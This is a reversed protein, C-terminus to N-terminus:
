FPFDGSSCSGYQGCNYMPDNGLFHYNSLWFGQTRTCCFQYPTPIYGGHIEKQQIKNLTAGLKLISNKM